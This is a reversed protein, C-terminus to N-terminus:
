RALFTSLPPPGYQAPCARKMVPKGQNVCRSPCAADDPKCKKCWDSCPVGETKGGQTKPACSENRMPQEQLLCDTVCRQGANCQKCWQLCPVSQAYAVPALAFLGMLGCVLARTMTRGAKQKPRAHWLGSRKRRRSRSSWQREVPRTSLAEFLKFM